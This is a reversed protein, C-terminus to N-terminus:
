DGRDLLWVLAVGAVIAWFASAIGLLNMDSAAVLLSVGAALSHRGEGVSLRLSQLIVPLLALGAVGAVLAPPMIRILSVATAGLLGFLVFGLGQVVTAVYRNEPEKHSEPGACVATMPAAINLGNGVLPATLISGIGSFITIANVPPEYGNARLIGVGPANQTAIALLTLPIAISFLAALDFAPAVLVPQTLSLRVEGNGFGGGLAAVALGAALAPVAPPIGSLFRTGLLYAAVMSGVLLPESPLSAFVQIGFDILIGALAGMVVENPVRDMIMGFLGSFGIVAVLVGSILFAGVAESVGYGSLTTVLLASGAIPYAGCVPERYLLALVLSLLGGGVFIAFFWSNVVAEPYGANSGAQYVLLAPGTIGLLTAVSGAGLTSANLHRASDRLNRRPERPPEPGKLRM